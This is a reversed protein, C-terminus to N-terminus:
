KKKLQYIACVSSPITQRDNDSPLNLRAIDGETIQIKKGGILSGTVVVEDSFVEVPAAADQATARRQDAPSVGGVQRAMQRTSWSGMCPGTGEQLVILDGLTGGAAIAAVEARARADQAAVKIAERQMEITQDLYINMQGSDQPGLALAAARAKGALSIDYLLVTLQATAEYGKVKDDRMNTQINGEKDRYQEYYPKVSVSTKVRAKDGAVKKIAEQALKAKAVAIEMSKNSSSDTEVFGVSFNARNPEVEVMARGLGEVVPQDWWYPRVVRTSDVEQAFAPEAFAIIALVVLRKM